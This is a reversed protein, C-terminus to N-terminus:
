IWGKQTGIVVIWLIATIILALLVGASAADKAHKALEHYELTVLDVVREIASNLIEVMLVFLLSGFLLLKSALSIDIFFLLVSLLTALILEVQMPKENKSVEILGNLSNILNKLPSFRQQKM